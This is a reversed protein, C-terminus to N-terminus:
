SGFVDGVSVGRGRSWEASSMRSRGSPQVDRICVAGDGCAVIIGEHVAIVEGPTDLSLDKIKEPRV